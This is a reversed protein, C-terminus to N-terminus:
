EAILKLYEPALGNMVFRALKYNKDQFAEKFKPNEIAYFLFGEVYQEPIKLDNIIEDEKIVYKVDELLMQKREVEVEKKLRKTRGSIANIIPDLLGSTATFVRREAPTYQKQGEPVIGLSEADISRDKDMVVEDLEYAQANVTIIFPQKKFSDENLVFERKTIRPSYVVLKDGPQAVITFSGSTNTKTEAQASANIIYVDNLGVNDLLVKGSFMQREQASAFATFFSLLLLLLKNKMM